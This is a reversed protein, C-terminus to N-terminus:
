IRGNKVKKGGRGQWPHEGAPNSQRKAVTIYRIGM